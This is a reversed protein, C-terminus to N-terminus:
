HEANANQFVISLDDTQLRVFIKGNAFLCGCQEHGSCNFKIRLADFEKQRDEDSVDQKAIGLEKAKFNIKWDFSRRPIGARRLAQLTPYSKGNLVLFRTRADKKPPLRFLEEVSKGQEILPILERYKMDLFLKWGVLNLSIGFGSIMKSTNVVKAPIKGRKGQEQNRKLAEKDYWPIRTTSEFHWGINKPQVNLEESILYPKMGLMYGRSIAHETLVSCANEEKLEISIPHKGKLNEIFWKCELPLRRAVCADYHDQHETLKTM